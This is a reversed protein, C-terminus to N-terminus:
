GPTRPGLRITRAFPQPIEPEQPYGFEPRARATHNRLLTTPSVRMRIEEVRYRSDFDEFVDGVKVDPSVNRWVPM